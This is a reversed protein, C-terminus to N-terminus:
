QKQLVPYGLTYIWKDAEAAHAPALGKAPM